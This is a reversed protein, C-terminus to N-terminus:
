PRDMSYDQLTQHFSQLQMGCILIALFPARQIELGVMIQSGFYLDCAHHPSLQVGRQRSDGSLFFELGYVIVELVQGIWMKELRDVNLDHQAIVLYATDQSGAKDLGRRGHRDGLASEKSPDDGPSAMILTAISCPRRCTSGHEVM